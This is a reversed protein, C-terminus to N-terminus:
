RGLIDTLVNRVFGTPMNLMLTRSGPGPNPYRDIQLTNVDQEALWAYPAALCLSEVAASAADIRQWQDAHPDNMIKGVEEMWMACTDMMCDQRRVILEETSTLIRQGNIIFPRDPDRFFDHLPYNKIKAYTRHEQSKVASLACRTTYILNEIQQRFYPYQFRSLKWDYIRIDHELMSAAAQAASFVQWNPHQRLGDDM